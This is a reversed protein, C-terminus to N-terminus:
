EVKWCVTGLATHGRRQGHRAHRITKSINIPWSDKVKHRLPRRRVRRRAPRGLKRSYGTVAALRRHPLPYTGDGRSRVVEYLKESNDIDHHQLLIESLHLMTKSGFIEGMNTGAIRDYYRARYLLRRAGHQENDSFATRNHLVNNCILGEGAALRYRFVSPSDDALLQELFRVAAGTRCREGCYAARARPTGCISIGMRRILASYRPRRQGLAEAGEETNPPITMADPAMLARVYDPNADRLRIYAVEPDLLANEGGRRRRSCVTCCFRASAAPRRTTIATPTGCCAVTRTRFTAGGPSARCRRSRPLVTRTRSCTATSTISDLIRESDGPFTRRSWPHLGSRAM